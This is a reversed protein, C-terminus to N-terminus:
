EEKGDLVVGCAIVFGGVTTLLGVGAGGQGHVFLYQVAWGVPGCLAVIGLLVRRAVGHKSMPEKM